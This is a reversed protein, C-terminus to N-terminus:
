AEIMIGATSWASMLTDHQEGAKNISNRERLAKQNGATIRRQLPYKVYHNCDCSQSRLGPM